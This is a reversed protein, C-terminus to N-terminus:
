NKGNSKIEGGYRKLINFIDRACSNCLRLMIIPREIKTDLWSPNLELKLDFVMNTERKCASCVM